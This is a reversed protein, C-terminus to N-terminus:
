TTKGTGVGFDSCCRKNHIKPLVLVVCHAKIALNMDNERELVLTGVVDRMIVSLRFVSQIKLLRLPRQAEHDCADTKGMEAYISLTHQRSIRKCM